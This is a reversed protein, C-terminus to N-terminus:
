QDVPVPGEEVITCPFYALFVMNFDNLKQQAQQDQLLRQIERNDTRKSLSHPCGNTPDFLVEGAATCVAVAASAVRSVFVISVLIRIVWFIPICTIKSIPEFGHLM